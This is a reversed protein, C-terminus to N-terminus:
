ADESQENERQCRRSFSLRLGGRPDDDAAVSRPLSLRRWSLAEGTDCTYARKELTLRPLTRTWRAADDGEVRASTGRPVRVRAALREDHRRTDTTHLAPAIGGLLDARAIDDPDRGPHLVPVACRWVRRHCVD